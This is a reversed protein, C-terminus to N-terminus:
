SEQITENKNFFIAVNIIRSNNRPSHYVTTQVFDRQLSKMFIYNKCIKFYLKYFILSSTLLFVMFFPVAKQGESVIHGSM